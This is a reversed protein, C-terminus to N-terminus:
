RKDHDMKRSRFEAIRLANDVVSSALLNFRKRREVLQVVVCDGNM